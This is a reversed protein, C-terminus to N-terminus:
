GKGERGPRHGNHLLLRDAPRDLVPSWAHHIGKSPKMVDYDLPSAAFRGRGKSRHSM